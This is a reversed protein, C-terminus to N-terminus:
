LYHGTIRLLPASFPAAALVLSRAIALSPMRLERPPIVALNKKQSYLSNAKRNILVARSGARRGGLGSKTNRRHSGALYDSVRRM